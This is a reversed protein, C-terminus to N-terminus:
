KEGVIQAEIRHVSARHSAWALREITSQYRAAGQEILTSARHLYTRAKTPTAIAEYAASLAAAIAANLPAYGLEGAYLREGLLPSVVRHAGSSLMSARQSTTPKHLMDGFITRHKHWSM